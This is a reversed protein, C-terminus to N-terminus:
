LAKKMAEVCAKNEEPFGMSIRLYGPMYWDEGKRVYVKKAELKKQAAKSPIGAMSRFSFAKLERINAASSLVYGLRIGALGHVKCGVLVM